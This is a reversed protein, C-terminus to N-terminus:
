RSPPASAWAAAGAGGTVGSPAASVFSESRNAAHIDVDGGDLTVNAPTATVITGEDFGVVAISDLNAVTIAVSGAVGIDGGSAGSLAEAHMTHTGDFLRQTTNGNSTLKIAKGALADERSTALEARDGDLIIIYYTTGDTLGGMTAGTGNDYRVADGTRLNHGAGLDVVRRQASDFSVEDQGILGFLGGYEFKHGSGTGQDTLDVRGVTGGAKARAEGEEDDSGEYLIVKGGDEVRAYYSDGDDLGGIENGDGNQYTVKDGTKITHGKGIFLTEADTDVLNVLAPEVELERQAMKAEVTLGAAEVTAGAGVYAENHVTAVNVAVGVGVGTGGSSTVASGDATATADTLNAATLILAGSGDDDSDAIVTRFEPLAARSTSTAM